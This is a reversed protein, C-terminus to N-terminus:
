VGRAEEIAASLATEMLHAAVRTRYAATAHVDDVGDIEAAGARSADRLTAGLEARDTTGRGVLAGEAATARQPTSAVGFLGLAVRTLTDDGGIEVAAAVGALAFDGSRRAVEHVTFGCRGSWVPFRTAVLVEDDALATSWTGTFFDAAGIERRGRTSAAEFTADLALAVAPLESAPDAHALSGGVTGRNRIQFHGIHPLARAVLPVAAALVTDHEAVAQPTTAGVRVHGDDRTIGRLEGIRTVDVLHAFRTLRLALMPVLSQGGALVKADDGHEHLLGAAEDLAEPAHYDFPAPKM